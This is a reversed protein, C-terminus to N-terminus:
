SSPPRTSRRSPEGCPSGPPRPNRSLLARRGAEWEHMRRCHSPPNGFAVGCCDIFVEMVVWRRRHVRTCITEWRGCLPFVNVVRSFFVGFYTPEGKAM